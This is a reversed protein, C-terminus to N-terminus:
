FIEYPVTHVVKKRCIHKRFLEQASTLELLKCKYVVLLTEKLLAEALPHFPYFEM